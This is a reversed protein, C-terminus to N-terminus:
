LYALAKKHYSPMRTTWKGAELDTATICTFAKPMDGNSDRWFIPNAIHVLHHSDLTIHIDDIKTRIRNLLATLRQMDQDAGPVFLSGKPDAFDNQPDIILMHISKRTMIIKRE